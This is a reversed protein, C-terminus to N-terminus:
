DKVDLSMENVFRLLPQWDAIFNEANRTGLDFLSAGTAAASPYIQSDRLWAITEHELDELYSELDRATRTRSRVRNAVLGVARKNKRIPKLNDLVKLFRKTATEDFLSPLLPLLIIDATKVLEMTQKKRIGAPADIILRETKKPPKGIQKSWDVAGIRPLDEARREVWALSSRQHDCDALTTAFGTHALAGALNTAITTKGCGGKINTVLVSIMGNGGDNRAEVLVTSRRVARRRRGVAVADRRCRGPCALRTGPGRRPPHRVIRKRADRFAGRARRRGGRREPLRARGSANAPAIHVPAVRKPRYLSSFFDAAYRLKKLEIRLLHREEITLSDFVRGLKRAKKYRKTLLSDALEVVPRFLTASTESVPQLRWERNAIWAGYALLFTTYRPTNLAARAAERAADREIRIRALLDTLSSETPFAKSVPGVIEDMFVDLDRAAAMEGTLWRVEDTLWAYGDVPLVHRFLRLVSRLRRTAVRMQHIGEPHDSHRTCAENDLLHSLCHRCIHSLAEEVTADQSLTLRGSKRWPPDARNLRDRARDELSRTEIRIAMAEAIKRALAFPLGPDGARHELHAECVPTVTGETDITGSDIRLVTEDGNEIGIRRTTGKVATRQM